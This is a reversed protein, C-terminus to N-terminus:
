TTQSLLRPVKSCVLYGSLEKGKDRSILEALAPVAARKCQMHHFRITGLSQNLYEVSYAHQM